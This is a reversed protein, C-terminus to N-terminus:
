SVLKGAKPSVANSVMRSQLISFLISQRHECDLDCVAADNVLALPKAPDLFLGERDARFGRGM